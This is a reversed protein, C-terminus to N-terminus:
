HNCHSLMELGLMLWRDCILSSVTSGETGATIIKVCAIWGFQSQVWTVTALYRTGNAGGPCDIKRLCFDIELGFKTTQRFRGSYLFQEEM